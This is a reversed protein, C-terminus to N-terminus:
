LTLLPPPFPAFSATATGVAAAKGVPRAVLRCDKPQRKDKGETGVLSCRELKRDWGLKLLQLIKM